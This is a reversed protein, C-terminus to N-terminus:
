SRNNLRNVSIVGPNKKIKNIVKQLHSLDIVEVTVDCTFLSNESTLNVDIINSHLANISESIESLFNKRREALIRIGVLFRNSKEAAWSVDVIRDKEQMLRILNKCANGHVVIGRGKTVIGTIPDGPVPNCCKGFAIMINDMGAVRVGDSKGRARELFRSIPSKEKEIVKDEPLLRRIITDTKTDGRGISALLQKGNLFKLKEALEELDIEKLNIGYKGVAKGLIEEGLQLSSEFESDRIFKKIKSRAKGSAVFKLWGENPHQNANTIIEVQDGSHLAHSLPVIQGNVKAAFCHLGIDTHVAFAFDVPTSNLPLKYLDGKPTYVFVEDQFLSIKLNEMFSISDADEEDLDLIQRLWILHKDLDDERIAGEKYRWHAAIGQEATKHMAETRIQIEYRKGFPGIVTTHISQYGNAKPTAIYDKFRESIPQFLSHVIGLTHYCDQIKEVVIRIALLDFIEEFPVGRVTIKKYISYFHKARGEFRAHIKAEVLSRRIPRTIVRIGQEREEKTENVKRRIDYYIEDELYKFSLDELEGKIKALGLRHALPAYVQRTELAIRRQKEKPLYDLTRMNHLRDAFKIMIVRIDRVMSLLMKRFNEAQRQESEGLKLESIKTVGDVLGAVQEGFQERIQDISVDTDEVTDHLLGGIITQYDMKLGVLIKAVELPHEIYPEGSKRYQGLHLDYSLDFARRVLELDATKNYRELRRM